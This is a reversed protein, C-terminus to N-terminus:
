FIAIIHQNSSGRFALRKDALDKVFPGDVIVDCMDVLMRGHLPDPIDGREIQDMTYGTYLWINPLFGLFRKLKVLFRLVALPKYLPDGGTLTIGSLYPRKKIEEAIEYIINESILVGFHPDHTEPNHCGPCNHACGSFFIATRVGTGDCASEYNVGALFGYDVASQAYVM